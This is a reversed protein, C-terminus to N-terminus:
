SSALARNVLRAVSSCNTGRLLAELDTARESLKSIIIMDFVSCLRRAIPETIPLSEHERGERRRLMEVAGALKKLSADSAAARSSLSCATTM